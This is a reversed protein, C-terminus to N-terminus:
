KQLERVKGDSLIMVTKGTRIGAERLIRKAESVFTLSLRLAHACGSSGAALPMRGLRVPIRDRLLEVARHGDTLTYIGIYAYKM